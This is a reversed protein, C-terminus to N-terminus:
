GSDPAAGSVRVTTETVVVFHHDIQNAHMSFLRSLAQITSQSTQDDLRLLVVGRHSHQDRFVLDGFDKDATILV